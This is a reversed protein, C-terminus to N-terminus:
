NPLSANRYAATIQAHQYRSEIPMSGNKSVAAATRQIFKM